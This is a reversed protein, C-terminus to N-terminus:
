RRTSPSAPASCRARARDATAALSSLPIRSTPGAGVRLRQAANAGVDDLPIVTNLYDNGGSLNILVVARGDARRRRPAGRPPWPRARQRGALFASASAGKLFQRRNIRM